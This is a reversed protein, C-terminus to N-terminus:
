QLAKPMTLSYSLDVAQPHQWSAVMLHGPLLTCPPAQLLFLCGKLLMCGLGKVKKVVVIGCPLTREQGDHRFVLGQRQQPSLSCQEVLNTSLSMKAPVSMAQTSQHWRLEISLHESARLQMGQRIGAAGAPAPSDKSARPYDFTKICTSTAVDWVRVTADFSCTALLQM